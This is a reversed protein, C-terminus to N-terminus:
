LRELKEIFRDYVRQNVVRLMDMLEDMIKWAQAAQKGDIARLFDTDGYLGIRSEQGEQTLSRSLEYEREGTEMHDLVTYLAALKAVTSLSPSNTGELKEIADRVETEKLM